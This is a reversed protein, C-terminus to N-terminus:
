QFLSPTRTVRATRFENLGDTGSLIMHTPVRHRWIPANRGNRLSQVLSLSPLVDHITDFPRAATKRDNMSAQVDSLDYTSEYNLFSKQWLM